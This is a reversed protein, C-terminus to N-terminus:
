KCGWLDSDFRERFQAAPLWPSSDQLWSLHPNSQPPKWLKIGSMVATEPVRQPQLSTHCASLAKFSLCTTRDADGDPIECHRSHVQSLWTLWKYVPIMETYAHVTNHIHVQLVSGDQLRCLGGDESPTSVWLGIESERLCPAGPWSPSTSHAWCTKPNKQQKIINYIMRSPKAVSPELASAGQGSRKIMLGAGHGSIAWDLAFCGGWCM